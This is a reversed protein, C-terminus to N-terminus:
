ICHMHEGMPGRLTQSEAVGPQIGLRDVAVALHNAPPFTGKARVPIQQQVPAIQRGAVGTSREDIREPLPRSGVDGGAGIESSVCQEPAIPIQLIPRAANLCLIRSVRVRLM